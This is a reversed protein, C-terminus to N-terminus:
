PVLLEVYVDKLYVVCDGGEENGGRTFKFSDLALVANEDAKKHGRTEKQLNGNEWILERWGSYDLYQPFPYETIRGDKDRLTVAFGYRYNTGYVRARIRVVPGANRLVGYGDTFRSDDVPIEFPPKLAGSCDLAVRPFSFRMGLVAYGEPAKQPRVPVGAGDLPLLVPNFRSPAELARSVTDNRANRSVADPEFRWLYASLSAFGRIADGTLTAMNQPVPSPLPDALAKKGFFENFRMKGQEVTKEPEYGNGNAKLLSFDLLLRTVTRPGASLGPGSALMFMALVLLPTKARTMM